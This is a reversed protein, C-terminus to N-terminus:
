IAKLLNQIINKDSQNTIKSRLNSSYDEKKLSLSFHGFNNVSNALFNLLFKNTKLIDKKDIRKELSNFKTKSFNLVVNKIYKLYILNKGICLIKKNLILSQASLSSSLHIIFQSKQIINILNNPKHLFIIKKNLFFFKKNKILKLFFTFPNTNPHLLFVLEINMRELIKNIYNKFKMIFM